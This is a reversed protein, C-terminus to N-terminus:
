ALAGYRQIFDCIERVAGNGGPRATVYHVSEKVSDLAEPVTAAFGVQKLVPIDPVDDGVYAMETPKLGSVKQLELFAPQKDHAKEYFFDIKLNKARQRIDESDSATIIALRYGRERLMKLGLGDRISFFRRWEGGSDMWIRADTLVGDVDLVLMRIPRLRDIELNM